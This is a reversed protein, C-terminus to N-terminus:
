TLTVLEKPFASLVEPGEPGVVVLDEIRVGGAGPLYVGPEVTVVNGPELAADSEPALRPDEHIELGVSHGLGHLTEYGRERLLGRSLADLDRCAAGARVAAVSREQALRCAEYASALEDPLAGTAFTRTCDSCYGDVVAGADVLLAEGERVVREGPHHHPRAANAGSAVIPEFSVAPAGLERITREMRWALEAETRGIVPEAAFREFAEDLLQASRRVARLEAADKVARLGEVVKRAPRLEVGSRAVQAHVAVSVHDAEFAVPGAALEALRAGLDSALDRGAAVAQVGPVAGAAEIYRGDTLLLAREPDVLLWANSSQFGTLYLVNTASSVLLAAADLERLRGRLRELRDPRSGASRM